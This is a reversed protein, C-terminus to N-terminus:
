PRFSLGVSNSEIIMVGIGVGSVSDYWKHSLLDLVVGVFSLLDNGNGGGVEEVLLITQM